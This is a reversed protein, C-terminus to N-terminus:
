DDVFEVFEAEEDLPIDKYQSAVQELPELTRIAQLVVHFMRKAFELVNLSDFIDERIIYSLYSRIIKVNVIKRRFYIYKALVYPNQVLMIYIMTFEPNREYEERSRNVHQCCQYVMKEFAKQNAETM